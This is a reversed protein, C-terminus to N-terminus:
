SAPGTAGGAPSPPRPSPPTPSPPKPSPPTGSSAPASKSAPQALADQTLLGERRLMRRATRQVRAIQSADLFPVAETRTYSMLNGPTDSHQPNGLFHGLEHALVSPGSIASVIVYHTGGPGHWHVGRRERGAEDVDMLTGTVFCNVFGRELQPALADRDARTDLRAHRAALPSHGADEFRVGLPEYIANAQALQEAVFSAPAVDERARQAVHFWLRLTLPAAQALGRELGLTSALLCALVLGLWSATRAVGRM